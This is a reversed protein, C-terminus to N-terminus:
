CIVGFKSVSPWSDLLQKNLVPEPDRMLDSDLHEPPTPASCPGSRSLSVRHQRPPQGKDQPGRRPGRLSYDTSSCWWRHLCTGWKTTKKAVFILEPTIHSLLEVLARQPWQQLSQVAIITGYWNISFIVSNSLKRRGKGGRLHINAQIRYFITVQIVLM